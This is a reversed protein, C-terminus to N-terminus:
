FLFLKKVIRTRMKNYVKAFDYSAARIGSNSFIALTIDQNPFYYLDTTTGIGRGSHGMLFKYPFGKDAMLGYGYDPNKNDNWTKMQMLYKENLIRGKMLDELFCAADEITAYVGDDGIFWNTTELTQDSLDESIGDQNLDGYYRLTENEPTQKYYTNEYGFRKIIENRLFTTHDSVVSDLVMALLMYNTSSYHYEEGPQNQVNKGYVYRRLIEQHSITDLKLKGSIYLENLEPDRDYNVYGSTQGLLHRITIKEANPLNESISAPLYDGIRDDLSIKGQEALKLTAVATYMKGISAMSFVHEQGLPINKDLDAFGSTGIWKGYKPHNIYISVGVLKKATAKNLYKQIKRYKAPIVEPNQASSFAYTALVMLVAM